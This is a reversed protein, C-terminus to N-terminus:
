ARWFGPTLLVLVTFLELRGLLMAFSLIWKAMDPLGAYTGAPGVVPGLGPGVNAIASAAASMATLNDLGILNLALAVAAFCLFFMFFFSMVAASVNDPLRRDNYHAVFVGNPYLMRNIQVKVNEALVQFRFIKIGCSTSGACGGVFMLCFFFVSAFPGWAGYDTTAYGTGTMISVVNFAALRLATVPHNLDQAIQYAWAIAVFGVALAFFWRVQSDSFLPSAHCRVAQLYLVFPLSGVIMFIISITDIAASDFAAMSADFTSFGGTAITTFAHAAADFLRMGGLYYAILCAITFGLYLFTISGAIKTARPLIKESTDSSEMRFLQMGGIQLMPLVAIAMVIIGIGGLWQLLARWILLGPPAQEIRTLVTAGTTTLGSMAEFFADTYSLGLESWAMPLAAFAALAVWASTTLVFAQKVSLNGTRGWTILTMTIGVFLTFGASAAFVLWDDNQLALDLLAPLIMACGLTTLLIGIVLLIPKPDM